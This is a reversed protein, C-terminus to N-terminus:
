LLQQIVDCLPQLRRIHKQAVGYGWKPQLVPCSGTFMPLSADADNRLFFWVKKWRVLNDPRLLLFYPDVGPRSRVFIDESGLMMAEEDSGQQLRARFSYNWLDFHPEIGMYANCLTVFAAM